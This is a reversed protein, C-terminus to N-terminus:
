GYVNGPKTRKSERLGCLGKEKEQEENKHETLEHESRRWKEGSKCRHAFLQPGCPNDPSVAKGFTGETGRHFEREKFLFPSCLRLLSPYLAPLKM